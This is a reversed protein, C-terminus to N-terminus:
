TASALGLRVGVRVCVGEIVGDTHADKVLVGLGVPVPVPEPVGDCLLVPDRVPVPVPVGEWVNVGVKTAIRFGPETAM